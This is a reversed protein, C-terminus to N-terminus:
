KIQVKKVDSKASEANRQDREPNSTESEGSVDGSNKAMLWMGLIILVIILGNLWLSQDLTSQGLHALMFSAPLIGIATALLFRWYIIPTIGAAYSVLDFSIFPILRSVMIALLLRNQNMTEWHPFRQQLWGRAANYGLSRAIWFAVSSGMLSGLFVYLTGEYHGYLAGAAMAIPASPLPSFVIALALIGMLLLPGIMGADKVLATVKQQDFEALFTSLSAFSLDGWLTILLTVVIAPLLWLSTTLTITRISM